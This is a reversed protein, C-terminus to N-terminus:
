SAGPAGSSALLTLISAVLERPLVPKSVHLTFGASLARVRDEERTFATLAISPVEGGASAALSRIRRILSYGDEDPMAIDSIVLEPQFAGLAAFGEAASSASQIVAGEGRLIEVLLERADAEDEVVLVRLGVLSGRRLRTVSGTAEASSGGLAPGLPAFFCGRPLAPWSAVAANTRMSIDSFM